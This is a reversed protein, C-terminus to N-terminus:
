FGNKFVNMTPAEFTPCIDQQRGTPITFRDM